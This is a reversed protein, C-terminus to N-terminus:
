SYLGRWLFFEWFSPQELIRSEDTHAGWTLYSKLCLLIGAKEGSSDGLQGDVSGARAFVVPMM